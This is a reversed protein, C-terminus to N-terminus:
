SIKVIFQTYIDRMLDKTIITALNQIVSIQIKKFKRSYHM